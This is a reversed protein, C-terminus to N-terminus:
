EEQEDKLWDEIEKKTQERADESRQRLQELLPNAETEVNDKEILTPVGEDDMPGLELSKMINDFEASTADVEREAETKVADAEISFFINVVDGAGDEPVFNINLISLELKEAIEKIRKTLLRMAEFPNDTMIKKRSHSGVGLTCVVCAHGAHVRPLYPLVRLL